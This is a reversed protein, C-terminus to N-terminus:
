LGTAGAELHFVERLELSLPRHDPHSPMLSSMHAWWRRCVDTRAIAEWQEESQFEVYAFLQHTGDHLFISYTQVGHQLLASELEPWIPQHRRVYEAECGPNVSMVFAKRIM